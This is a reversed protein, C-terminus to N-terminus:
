VPKLMPTLSLISQNKTQNRLFNASNHGKKSKIKRNIGNYYGVQCLIVIKPISSLTIKILLIYILTVDSQM